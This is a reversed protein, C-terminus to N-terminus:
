VLYETTTVSGLNSTYVVFRSVVLPFTKPFRTGCPIHMQKNSRARHLSVFSRHERLRVEFKHHACYSSSQM